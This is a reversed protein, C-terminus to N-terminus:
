FLKLIHGINSQFFNYSQTNISLKYFCHMCNSTKLGITYFEEKQWVTFNVLSFVFPVNATQVINTVTKFSAVQTVDSKQIFVKTFINEAKFIDVSFFSYEVQASNSRPFCNQRM